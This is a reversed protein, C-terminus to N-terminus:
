VFSIKLFTGFNGYKLPNKKESIARNLCYTGPLYIAPNKFCTGFDESNSSKKRNLFFFEPLAM